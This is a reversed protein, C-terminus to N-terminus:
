VGDDDEGGEDDDERRTVLRVQDYCQLGAALCAVAVVAPSHCHIIAGVDPRSAYVASHIIDGTENVVGESDEAHEDVLCMDSAAKLSTSFVSYM